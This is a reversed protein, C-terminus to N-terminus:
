DQLGRHTVIVATRNKWFYIDPFPKEAGAMKIQQQIQHIMTWAAHPFTGEFDSDASVEYLMRTDYVVQWGAKEGWEEIIDSLYKGGTAHWIQSPSSNNDAMETSKSSGTSSGDPSYDEGGSPNIPSLSPSDVQHALSSSSARLDIPKQPAQTSAVAYPKNSPQIIPTPSSIPPPSPPATLFTVGPARIAASGGFVIPQSKSPSYSSSATTAPGSASDAAANLNRVSVEYGSVNFGYDAGSESHISNLTQRWDASGTWSVKDSPDVGGTIAINYGSPVILKIADYLPVSHGFGHSGSSRAFAQSSNLPAYIATSVFLSFALLKGNLGM